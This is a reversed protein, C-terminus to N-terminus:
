LEAVMRSSAVATVCEQCRSRGARAMPETLGALTSSLKGCASGFEVLLNAAPM